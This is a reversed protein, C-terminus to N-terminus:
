FYIQCALEPPYTVSLSRLRWFRTPWCTSMGFAPGTCRNLLTFTFFDPDSYNISGLKSSVRRVSGSELRRSGTRLTYHSAQCTQLPWPQCVHCVSPHNANRCKASKLMKPHKKPVKNQLTTSMRSPPYLHGLNYTIKKSEAQGKKSGPIKYELNTGM